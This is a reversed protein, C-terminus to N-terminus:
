TAARGRRVRCGEQFRLTMANINVVKRQDSESNQVMIELLIRKDYENVFIGGTKNIEQAALEYGGRCQDSLNWLRGTLSLAAGIPITQPATQAAMAATALLLVLFALLMSHALM